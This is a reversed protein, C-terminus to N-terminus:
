FISAYHVVHKLQRVRVFHVFTSSIKMFKKTVNLSFFPILLISSLNQLSRICNLRSVQYKKHFVKECEPCQHYEDDDDAAMKSQIRSPCAATSPEGVKDIIFVKPSTGDNEMSREDDKIPEPPIFDNLGNQRKLGIPVLKPMIANSFTYGNSTIPSQAPNLEVNSIIIITNGNSSESHVNECKEDSTIQTLGNGNWDLDPQTRNGTEQQHHQQQNQLVEAPYQQLNKKNLKSALAKAVNEKIPKKNLVIRRYESSKKISTTLEPRIIHATHVNRLHKDLSNPNKFARACVICKDFNSQPESDEASSQQPVSSEMWSHHVDLPDTAPTYNEM